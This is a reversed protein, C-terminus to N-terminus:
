ALGGGGGGGGGEGEGPILNKHFGMTHSTIASTVRQWKEERERESVWGGRGETKRKTM